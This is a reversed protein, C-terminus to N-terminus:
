GRLSFAFMPTGTDTCNPVTTVIQSSNAILNMYEGTGSNVVLLGSGRAVNASRTIFNKCVDAKMNTFTVGFSAIGYTATTDTITVGGGWAHRLEKTGSANVVVMDAPLVGLSALTNVNTEVADSPNQAYFGRIGQVLALLQKSASQQRMNEYASGAAAWIGGVILGVIGLVIAAEILNFGKNRAPRQAHKPSVFIM